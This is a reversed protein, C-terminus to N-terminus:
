MYDAVDIGLMPLLRLLTLRYRMYPSYRIGDMLFDPAINIDEPETVAGATKMLKLMEEDSPLEDLIIKRIKDWNKELAEPSVLDTICPDNQLKVNDVLREHFKSYVLDYDTTDKTAKVSLCKEEINRYIRNCIVTAVGVKKGHYEPWIGAIVKHCEWYHSIVHESGSAPRSCHALKMALGTLVLAEM